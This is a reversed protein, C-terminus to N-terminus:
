MGLLEAVRNVDVGLWFVYVNHLREGNYHLHSAADARGRTREIEVFRATAPEDGSQRAALGARISAGHAHALMVMPPVKSDPGDGIMSVLSDAGDDSNIVIMGIAGASAALRAKVTFVCGGRAVVVIRGRVSAQMPACGHYSKSWVLEGHLGDPGGPVLRGFQAASAEVTTPQQGPLWLEVAVVQMDPCFGREAEDPQPQTFMVLATDPEIVQTGVRAVYFGAQEGSASAITLMAPKFAVAEIGARSVLYITSADLGVHVPAPPPSSVDEVPALAAVPRVGAHEDVRQRYAVDHAFPREAACERSLDTDGDLQGAPSTYRALIPLLHGETTFVFRGSHVFSADDFLLYLYKLTEAMFYSDMQDLHTQHTAGVDAIAAYGCRVRTKNQLSFVIHRGVHLYYPDKTARYLLYTSEALEPRLAYHRGYEVPVKAHVNFAEPLAGYRRWLAYFAEHSRRAAALDGKLVQMGPWFAQLADINHSMQAGTDLHVPVYWPDRRVHREVAEYALNFRLM